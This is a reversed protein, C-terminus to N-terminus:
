ETPPQRYEIFAASIPAAMRGGTIVPELTTQPDLTVVTRPVDFELVTGLDSDERLPPAIKVVYDDGARSVVRNIRYTRWGWTAHDISFHQGARLGAGRTLSFSLETASLVADAAQVALILPAGLSAEWGFWDGDDASAPRGGLARKGGAWPRPAFGLDWLPMIFPRSGGSLFGSWARAALIRDADTLAIDNLESRWFGGGSFDGIQGWGSLARGGESVNGMIRTQQAAPTLLRYPWTFM